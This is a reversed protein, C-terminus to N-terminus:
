KEKGWIFSAAFLFYMLSSLVLVSQLYILYLSQYKQILVNFLGYFPFSGLYYVLIGLSVWFAQQHYFFLIKESYILRYFYILILILLLLSGASFSMSMSAFRAKPLIYYELIWCIIYMLSFLAVILHKRNIKLIKDYLVFLFIFLFPDLFRYLYVNLDYLKQHNFYWALIEVLVIIGLYCPFLKWHIPTNKKIFYIGVVFSILESFVVFNKLFEIREM